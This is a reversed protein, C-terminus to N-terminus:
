TMFTAMTKRKFGYPERNRSPFKAFPSGNRGFIGIKFGYPERNRSPFQKDRLLRVEDASKFGYPERNRSPFSSAPFPNIVAMTEKFGYPERNRSPFGLFNERRAVCLRSLSSIM